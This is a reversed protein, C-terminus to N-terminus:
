QPLIISDKATALNKGKAKGNEGVAYIDGNRNRNMDIYYIYEDRGFRNSRM